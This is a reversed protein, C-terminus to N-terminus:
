AISYAMLKRVKGNEGTVSTEAKVAVGMEVLKSLRYGVKNLTVDEGDIQNFIEERTQPEATLLSEVVECLEDKEAKKAAASEKAKAAKKDLLEVEHAVFTELMDFDFGEFDNDRALAILKSLAEFKERKTVKVSDM